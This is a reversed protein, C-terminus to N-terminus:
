EQRLAELPDLMTARRAPVYCALLASVLLVVSVAGFALADVRGVGYLLSSMVRGAAYAGASGIVLGAAALLIGEKLILRFVRGRSAGLAMRVGIEHTRQAVSFAIVGYIGLAALLLALGAFSTFLEVDFSDGSLSESLVQKMTRVRALPLDPAVSQVAAEISKRLDAADGGGRVAMGAEPWPSQWFPVYILPPQEGRLDGSRVNHAVGVIQWEIPPGLETKGPVLQQVIVNQTLPDTGAMFRKAFDESVIAVPLSGTTDQNTFNRGKELQVGFTEFYGPTVMQFGATPRSLPDGAPKGAISFAMGFGAGGLPMGTAVTARYVGPTAEIKELLERYFESVQAPQSFRTDAVPLFFTLVNKAHAGIDVHELNWLSHIMLGAGAAATSALAFELVVLARKIRARSASAASPGGEKLANSLNLRTAQWAPACGFLVGSVLTAALTFTLVPANLGVQAEAPLTFAPMTATFVKLVIWGVAIGCAGGVGALIVSEVLFQGFLQGRTAGLTARVAVERQRLMGRALLLNAVNACAILLVFGVSIMLLVLTAHLAPSVYRQYLELNVGWGKNSKPYAEAIRKAIVDMQAQAQQVSVGPKLRGMVSLWHFDHNIQEPKFVLPVSLEEIFRDLMGPAWVGVVTYPEGNLHIQKGIIKPDSGFRHRWLRNSLIVVHNKGPEGEEPLFDARGLISPLGVMDHTSPTEESATVEEVHGSTGLNFSAYTWAEIEQFVTNERKWDLFDGASVVNNGGQVRSWVWVLQEPHPFPMPAIISAYIVSFIATNAGIGLALALVAVAAFGPSKRLVRLGFQLDRWLNSM